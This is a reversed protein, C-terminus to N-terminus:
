VVSAAIADVAARRSSDLVHTYITSTTSLSAHGLLEQVVRLPVDEALAASAMSHRLGHLTIRPLGAAALDGPLRKDLRHPALPRGSPGSLVYGSYIGTKLRKEGQQAKQSRLVGVLVAPLPVTRVSSHSKPPCDVIGGKLEQRQNTIRLESTSFSVDSWRLGSLEGRRLGCLSALLWATSWPSPHALCWRVFTRLQLPDLYATTRAFHRPRLILSCPNIQVLTLKQASSFLSSLLIYLQEATRTHGALCAGALIASLTGPTCDSVQTGGLRDALYARYLHTYQEVTRAALGSARLAIWDNFFEDMTM